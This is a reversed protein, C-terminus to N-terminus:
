SYQFLYLASQLSSGIPNVQDKYFKRIIEKKKLNVVVAMESDTSM